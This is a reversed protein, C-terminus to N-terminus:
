ASATAMVEESRKKMEEPPVDEIHTSVFWKHGFPDLVSGSRDGYFQDKIPRDEKAGAALAQKFVQDVNEVYLMIAVPSGGLTQPSRGGMTPFEDSLMIRSDGIQIEAHGVQGSPDAMRFIEKAGFAKKYFEIAKAGGKVTLYPTVSHYGEPIPKVPKSM